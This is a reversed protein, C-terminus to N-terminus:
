CDLGKTPSIRSPAFVVSIACLFERWVSNLSEKDSVLDTGDAGESLSVVADESEWEWSETAVSDGNGTTLLWSHTAILLVKIAIGLGGALGDAWFIVTDVATPGDGGLSIGICMVPLLGTWDVTVDVPIWDAISVWVTCELLSIGAVSDLVLSFESLKLLGLITVDVPVDGGGCLIEVWTHSQM